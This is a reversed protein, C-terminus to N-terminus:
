PGGYYYMILFDSRMCQHPQTERLLSHEVRQLLAVVFVACGCVCVETKRLLVQPADQRVELRLAAIAADKREHEIRIRQVASLQQRLVGLGEEDSATLTGGSTNSERGACGGGSCNGCVVGLASIFGGGMGAMESRVAGAGVAQRTRENTSASLRSVHPTPAPSRTPRSKRIRRNHAHHTRTYPTDHQVFMLLVLGLVVVGALPPQRCGIFLPLPVIRPSRAM